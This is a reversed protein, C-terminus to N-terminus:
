PQSIKPFFDDGANLAKKPLCSFAVYRLAPWIHYFIEFIGM